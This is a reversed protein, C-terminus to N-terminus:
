DIQSISVTSPYDLALYPYEVPSIDRGPTTRDGLMAVSVCMDLFCGNTERDRREEPTMHRREDDLLICLEGDRTQLLDGKRFPTPVDIWFSLLGMVSSRKPLGSEDADMRAYGGGPLLEAQITLAKGGDRWVKQVYGGLTELAARCAAYSSFQRDGDALWVAGAEEREFRERAQERCRMDERMWEHLTMPVPFWENVPLPMDESSRLLERWAQMREGVPLSQNNEILVAAEMSSFRHGIAELHRRIARSEVYPLIDMDVYRTM